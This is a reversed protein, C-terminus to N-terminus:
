AGGKGNRLARLVEAGATTLRWCNFVNINPRPPGFSIYDAFWLTKSAERGCIGDRHVRELQRKLRKDSKAQMSQIFEQETM